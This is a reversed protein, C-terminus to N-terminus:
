ERYWLGPLRKKDEAAAQVWMKGLETLDVHTEARRCIFHSRRWRRTGDDGLVVAVIKRSLTIFFGFAPLSPTSMRRCNIRRGGSTSNSRESSSSSATSTTTLRPQLRHDICKTTYITLIAHNQQQNINNDSSIIQPQCATPWWYIDASMRRTTM